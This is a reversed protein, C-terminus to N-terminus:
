VSERVKGGREQVGDEGKAEACQREKGAVREREEREREERGGTESFLLKYALARRHVRAQVHVHMYTSTHFDLM